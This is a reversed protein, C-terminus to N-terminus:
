YRKVSLGKEYMPSKTCKGTKLFICFCIKALIGIEIDHSITCKCVFMEAGCVKPISLMSKRLHPLRFRPALHPPSFLLPGLLDQFSCGGAISGIVIENTDCRTESEMPVWSTCGVLCSFSSLCLLLVQLHSVPMRFAIPPCSFCYLRM